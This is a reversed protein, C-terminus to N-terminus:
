ECFFRVDRSGRIMLKLEELDGPNCAKHLTFQNEDMVKCMNEDIYSIPKM